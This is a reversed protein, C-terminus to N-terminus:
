QFNRRALARSGVGVWCSRCWGRGWWCRAGRDVNFQPPNPDKGAERLSCIRSGALSRLTHSAYRALHKSSQQLDNFASMGRGKTEKETKPGTGIIEFDQKEDRRVVGGLQTRATNQDHKSRQKSQIAPGRDFKSSVEDCCRPLRLEYQPKVKYSALVSFRGFVRNM